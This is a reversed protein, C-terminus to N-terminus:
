ASRPGSPTSRHFVGCYGDPGADLKCRKGTSTAVARCKPDGPPAVVVLLIKRARIRAPLRM